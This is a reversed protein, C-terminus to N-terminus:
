TLLARMSVIAENQIRHELRRAEGSTPVACRSAGDGDGAHIVADDGDNADFRAHPRRGRHREVVDRAGHAPAELAHARHRRRAVREHADVVLERLLIKGARVPAHHALM